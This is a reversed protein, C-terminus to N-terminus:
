ELVALQDMPWSDGAPVKRERRARQYAEETNVLVHGDMEGGVCRFGSRWSGDAVRVYVRDGIKPVRQAEGIFTLRAKM